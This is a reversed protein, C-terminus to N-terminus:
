PKEEQEQFPRERPTQKTELGEAQSLILGEVENRTFEALSRIGSLPPLALRRAPNCSSVM